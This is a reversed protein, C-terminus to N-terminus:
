FWELRTIILVLIASSIQGRYVACTTLTVAKMIVRLSQERSAWRRNCHDQLRQM